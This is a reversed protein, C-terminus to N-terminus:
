VGFMQRLAVWLSKKRADDLNSLGDSVIVDFGDIPIYEYTKQVPSLSVGFSIVRSPNFPLLDTVSLANNHLIQVTAVSLKVSGLIKNLLIKEEETIEGWPKDVLVLTRAPVLYLEEHYLNEFVSSEAM